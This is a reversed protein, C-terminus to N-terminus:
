GGILYAAVAVVIALVGLGAIDAAPLDARAPDEYAPDELARLRRELEASVEPDAM